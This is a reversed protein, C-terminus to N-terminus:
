QLPMPGAVPIMMHVPARESLTEEWFLGRSPVDLIGGGVCSLDAKVKVLTTCPRAPSERSPTRARSWPQHRPHQLADSSRVSRLEQRSLNTVQFERVNSAQRSYSHGRWCGAERGPISTIRRSYDEVKGSGNVAGAAGLTRGVGVRPGRRREISGRSGM